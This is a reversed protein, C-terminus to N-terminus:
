ANSKIVENLFDKTIKKYRERDVIFSLGHSAHPFTYRRIMEPNSLRVNESMYAPVFFDEEGHILLIPINVNKVAKKADCSSLNFHGVLIAGCWLVPWGLWLPIHMDEKCVKKVIGAPSDFPCDACIAKVQKPLNLNASMLVSCGGMSIGVLVIDSEPFRNSIYDAWSKVDRREKVGMTTFKGKSDMHAREDILLINYNLDKFIFFGGCFDRNATGRYGHCLIAVPAGKKHEFYRAHLKAKDYSDIYVHECPLNQLTYLLDMVTELSERWKPDSPYDGDKIQQKNPSHFTTYGIYISVIIFAILLLGLIGLCIYLAIM